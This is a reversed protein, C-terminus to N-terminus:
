KNHRRSHTYKPIIFSTLHKEGTQQWKDVATIFMRHFLCTVMNPSLIELCIATDTTKRYGKNDGMTKDEARIMNVDSHGRAPSGRAGPVLRDAHNRVQFEVTTM